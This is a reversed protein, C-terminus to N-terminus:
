LVDHNRDVTRFLIVVRDLTKLVCFVIGILTHHSVHLTKQFMSNAHTHSHIKIQVVIKIEEIKQIIHRFSEM